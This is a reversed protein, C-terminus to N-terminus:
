CSWWTSVCILVAERRIAARGVAGRPIQMTLSIGPNAPYMRSLRTILRGAGPAWGVLMPLCRVSAAAGGRQSPAIRLQVADVSPRRGHESEALLRRRVEWVWVEEASMGVLTLAPHQEVSARDGLLADPVGPLCPEGGVSAVAAGAVPTRSSARASSSFAAAAKSSRARMTAALGAARAQCAEPRRVMPQRPPTHGRENRDALATAPPAAATAVAAVVLEPVSVCVVGVAVVVSVRRHGLGRGGRGGRRGLRPRLGLGATVRGAPRRGVPRRVNM